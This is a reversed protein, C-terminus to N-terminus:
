NRHFGGTIFSLELPSPNLVCVNYFECCLIIQVGAKQLPYSWPCITVSSLPMLAIHMRIEASTSSRACCPAPRACTCLSSLVFRCQLLLGGAIRAFFALISTPFTSTQSWPSGPSVSLLCALLILFSLTVFNYIVPFGKPSILIILGHDKPLLLLLLLLAIATRPLRCVRRRLDGGRTTVCAAKSSVCPSIALLSVTGQFVPATCMPPRTSPRGSSHTRSSLFRGFSGCSM